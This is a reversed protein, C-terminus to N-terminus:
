SEAVIRQRAAEETTEYKLGIHFIEDLIPWLMGNRSGYCFDVDDSKLEGTSFRPPPLTGVILKEAEPFLFPEYPHKHFFM